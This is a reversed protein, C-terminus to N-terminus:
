GLDREEILGDIEMKELVPHNEDCEIKKTIPNIEIEILNDVVYVYLGCWNKLFGYKKLQNLDVDNKLYKM